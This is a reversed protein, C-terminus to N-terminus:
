AVVEAPTIREAVRELVLPMATTPDPGIRYAREVRAAVDDPREGGAGHHLVCLPEGVAVRDGIKKQVVIGVGPDIRDEIRSRGAGLAM